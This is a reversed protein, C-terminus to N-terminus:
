KFNLNAFDGHLERAANDYAKAADIPTDFLGLYIAKRKGESTIQIQGKWKNFYKVVGKYGSKNTVRIKRNLSNEYNTCTRLNARRNDLKDHNLHDTYLGQPTQNIIRHMFVIHKKGKIVCSYYMYGKANVKWNHGVVLSIDEDDVIAQEDRALTIYKM